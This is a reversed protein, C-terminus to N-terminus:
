QFSLLYPRQAEWMEDFLASIEAPSCVAATLPDLMLAYRAAEKNKTLLAECVLTHVAMHSRNIAALQEPLKGFHCPQVGNRDVLCPVEVCGDPLNDILGTNRVNGYIVTPQNFLTARIIDSGYENSHEFPIERTGNLMERIEDDNETRWSIWNHAYFGSEGLYGERAYQKVLDPRKRFYPTYESFHGSSETVFAGFHLMFEFRVPDQEYMDPNKAVERLHPYMDIGSHRLSTFWANHNIGACTWELENLPINLYGALLESTNQVSHCLGVIKMKSAQLGAFMLISMPNTYNLVLANPCLEEADHLIDLWAPGTRLAKFIGGPGITDGICQDVGYKMPIDYDHGVNPVGAVEITNIVFDSGALVDRRNTTALVDWQKNKGSIVLLQEAIQRALELREPDVDVLAFSGSDLGKIQIIDTMLQRAFVASGAGIITIRTM